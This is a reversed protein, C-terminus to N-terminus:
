SEEEQVEYGSVMARFNNWGSRIVQVIHVFFFAVFGVMLIFHELRAEEYGGLSETLWGLQVPKYIAFGTVTSGLGMFIVATYTIRQAGNFKGRVVPAEKRLRLDHLAVAFAEGFAKRDPWLLRWEGSFILYTVYFVGNIMFIWMLFFHWGMGEALKHSLGFSEAIGEPIKVYADNAWYILIGSWIMLTIMPFNVWHCWRIARPHKEIVPIQSTSDSNKYTM